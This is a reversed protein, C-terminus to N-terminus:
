LAIIAGGWLFSRTSGFISSIMFRLEQFMRLVRVTRLTKLVKFIRVLRLFTTDSIQAQISYVVESLALVGFFADLLNWRWERCLFFFCRYMYLGDRLVFEATSDVRAM